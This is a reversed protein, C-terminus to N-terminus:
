TTESNHHDVLHIERKAMFAKLEGFTIPRGFSEIGVDLRKGMGKDKHTLKCSGHSHGCIMWSGHGVKNHSYIPFHCMIIRQGNITFEVYEPLFVVTKNPNGDVQMTLPYVEHIMENGDFCQPFQRRLEEAYVTKVGSNHNGWQSYLM